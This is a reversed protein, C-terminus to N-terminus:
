VVACSAATANINLEYYTDLYKNAIEALIDGNIALGLISAVILVTVAVILATLVTAFLLTAYKTKAVIIKAVDEERAYRSVCLLTLAVDIGVVALIAAVLKTISEM